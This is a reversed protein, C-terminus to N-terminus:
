MECIFLIDEVTLDFMLFANKTIMCETDIVAYCLASPGGCSLPSAHANLAM